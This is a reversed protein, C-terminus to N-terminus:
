KEGIGLFKIVKGMEYYEKRWLDSYEKGSLYCIEVRLKGMEEIFTPDKRAEKFVAELKKIIPEPVGKPAVISSYAMAYFNYGKELTNPVDPFDPWRKEGLSLLFKFKNKHPLMEIPTQAVADTHGGLFAVTAEAGSKFPVATWKIGEKIAIREMCIHQTTGIGACAYTFKGPNNRAYAIVDGFTNWPGDLKVGLGLLNSVHAIIDILDTLPNYPLKKMHPHIIYASTQPVGLTYGDSKSKLVYNVGISGGGGAKNEVIIPQGLEKEAAKAFARTITDSMGGAGWPCVLTVPRNPYVEQSLGNGVLLGGMLFFVMVLVKLFPEKAIYMKM